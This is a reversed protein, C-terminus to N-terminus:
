RPDPRTLFVRELRSLEKTQESSGLGSLYEHLLPKLSLRWLREVPAAAQQGRWLFTRRLGPDAGLDSRLFSTVDLFYTHGVEYQPGLLQSNRIEDNLAAAADCLTRFDAEVKSWAVSGGAGWITECASFLAEADFGCHIWLFRRRLAFDVQEISQDILNMTAIVYLDAPIRLTLAKGSGDVGPLDIEQNRDELLSFCEGLLRSLDARNIEDLILIYPLRSQPAETNIEQILRPLFGLRYETGGGENIHLGRVFDEYSYAPHLQCRRVRKAIANEIAGQERFYRAAGWEKIAASRIALEALRKAQFTKGTGPPGYLVIQKKHQIADFAGFDDGAESRDYWAAELPSWYFDLEKKDLLTELEGRIALLREDENATGESGLGKFAEVIRRKHTGSAIREFEDPFLLHTLIHRLQAGDGGPVECLFSRFAWAEHLKAGRDTEILDKLSISLDILYSLEIPRRAGYGYGASGIGSSFADWLLGSEPLGADSWSLVTNVLERKRSGGINSPFLLYVALVEAALRVVDPGTARVQGEFRELFDKGKPPAAIARKLKELNAKTWLVKGPELLSGDRILCEDRFLLAVEYIKTTDHESYRAM